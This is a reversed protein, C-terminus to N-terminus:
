DEPETEDAPDEGEDSPDHHTKIATRVAEQLRGVLEKVAKKTTFDRYMNEGLFNDLMDDLDIEEGDGTIGVNWLTNSDYDRRRLWPEWENESLIEALMKVQPFETDFDYEAAEWDGDMVGEFQALSDYAHDSWMSELRGVLESEVYANLMEPPVKQESRRRYGLVKGRSMGTTSTRMYLEDLSTMNGEKPGNSREAKRRAREAAREAQRKDQSEQKEADAVERAKAYVGETEKEMKKERANGRAQEAEGARKADAKRKENKRHEERLKRMFLHREELSFPPPVSGEYDSDDDVAVEDGDQMGKAGFRRKGSM